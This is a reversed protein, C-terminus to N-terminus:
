LPCISKYHAVSDPLMVTSMDARGTRHRLRRCTAWRRGDSFGCRKGGGCFMRAEICLLLLLKDCLYECVYLCAHLFSYLHVAAAGPRSRRLCARLCRVVGACCGCVSIHVSRLFTFPVMFLRVLIHPVCRQASADATNTPTTVPRRSDNWGRM